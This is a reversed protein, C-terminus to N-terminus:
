DPSFCCGSGLRWFIRECARTVWCKVKAFVGRYDSCVLSLAIAFFYEAKVRPDNLNASLEKLHLEAAFLALSKPKDVQEPRAGIISVAQSRGVFRRNCWRFDPTRAIRIRYDPNISPRAKQTEATNLSQAHVVFIAESLM